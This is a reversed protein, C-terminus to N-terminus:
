KFIGALYDVTNLGLFEQYSVFLNRILPPLYILGFVLPVLILLFKVIAFIELWRIYKRTKDTIAYTAKMFKLNEKLLRKIEEIDNNESESNDKTIHPDKQNM